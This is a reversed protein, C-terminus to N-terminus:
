LVLSMYYQKQHFKNLHYKKDESLEIIIRYVKEYDITHQLLDKEAAISFDTYLEIDAEFKGGMSQEQKFVGHYAYFSIKKIRIIHEM